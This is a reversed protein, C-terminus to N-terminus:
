ELPEGKRLRRGNVYSFASMENKGSPHISHIRLLGRATSVVIFDKTIDVIIGPAIGKGLEQDLLSISSLKIKNKLHVQPWSKFALFKLYIDRASMAKLDLLGDDKMIKKTYTAKSEDQAFPHINSASLFDLLMLISKKALFNALEMIDMDLGSKGMVEGGRHISYFGLINGADMRENIRMLSISFYKSEKLIMEQMPSAGRFNPLLSTHVNLCCYRNTLAKPLLKGYAVIIILEPALEDIIGLEELGIKQPQFIPINEHINRAILLEKTEPAKLKRARGYPKDPQAFLALLHVYPLIGELVDRAFAPTGFFIIRKM